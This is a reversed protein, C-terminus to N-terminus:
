KIKDVVKDLDTCFQGLERKLAEQFAPNAEVRVLLPRMSPYYSLFDWFKFGTIYLSFQIQAFYEQPLNGSLLYKAQTKALVNKLELGYEGGIIGDPSCLFKKESDKYILGVKDVTRGTILEYFRRSEGERELGIKMCENIYSDEQRGTIREAALEYLYSTRSKSPTGDNTIIKSANSASPKGAKAMFWEESGQSMNEIIM